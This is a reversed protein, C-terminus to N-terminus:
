RQPDISEANMNFIRLATMVLLIPHASEFKKKLIKKLVKSYNINNRHVLRIKERRTLQKLFRKVTIIATSLLSFDILMSLVTTQNYSSLLYSFDLFDKETVRMVGLKAIIASLFVLWDKHQAITAIMSTLNNGMARLWSPSIQVQYAMIRNNENREKAKLWSTRVNEMTTSISNQALINFHSVETKYPSTLLGMLTFGYYTWESQFQSLGLEAETERNLEGDLRYTSKGPKCIISPSDASISNAYNKVASDYVEAVGNVSCYCSLYDSVASGRVTYPTFGDQTIFNGSINVYHPYTSKALFENLHALANIPNSSSGLKDKLSETLEYEHNILRKLEDRYEDLYPHGLVNNEIGMPSGFNHGEFGCITGFTTLECNFKLTRVNANYTSDEDIEVHKVRVNVGSYFFESTCKLHDKYQQYLSKFVEGVKSAVLEGNIESIGIDSDVFKSVLLKPM